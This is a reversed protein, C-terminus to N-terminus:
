TYSLPGFVAFQILSPGKSPIACHPGKSPIACHISHQVSFGSTTHQQHPNLERAPYQYPIKRRSDVKLESERATLRETNTRCDYADADTHVTFIGFVPLWTMKQVCPFVVCVPLLPYHQEQLLQLTAWNLSTNFIFTHILKHPPDALMSIISM